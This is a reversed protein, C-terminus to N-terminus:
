RHGEQKGSPQVFAAAAHVADNAPYYEITRLAQELVATAYFPLDGNSATGDCWAQYDAVLRDRDVLGIEALKSDEFLHTVASRGAVRMGFRCAPSFDDPQPPHTVNGSCGLKSLLKREVARDERWLLPLRACFGVLEPTCLPSVTWVGHRMAMASSCAAASIGSSSILSAPARDLRTDTLIERAIKTFFSPIREKEQQGEAAESAHIAALEEDTFDYDSGGCLEDGGLGTFLLNTGQRGAGKLLQDLAEFYVDEWPVVPGGQLRTSNPAFPIWDRMEVTTDRFGFQQVFEQRRARQAEGMQELLVVGHTALSGDLLEAAAIAVIGSDLGGSLEAGAGQFDRPLWRSLSRQLIRWFANLVDADAKLREPRPTLVAPPYDVAFEMAKMDHPSVKWVARSRETLMWMDRFM